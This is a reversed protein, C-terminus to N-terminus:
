RLVTEAAMAMLLLCFIIFDWHEDSMSEGVIFTGLCRNTDM